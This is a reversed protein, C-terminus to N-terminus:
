FEDPLRERIEEGKLAMNKNELVIAFDIIMENDNHYSKDSCSLTFDTKYQVIFSGSLKQNFKISNQKVSVGFVKGAEAYHYGSLLCEIEVYHLELENNFLVTIKNLDYLQFANVFRTSIEVTAGERKNV